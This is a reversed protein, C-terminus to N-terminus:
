RRTLIQQLSLFAKWFNKKAEDDSLAPALAPLSLGSISSTWPFWLGPPAESFSNRSLPYDLADIESDAGPGIAVLASPQCSLLEKLLLGTSSWTVYAASLKLAELSRELADIARPGVPQSLVIVLGSAPDGLPAPHGAREMRRAIGLAEQATKSRYDNEPSQM